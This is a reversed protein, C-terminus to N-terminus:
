VLEQCHRCRKMGPPVGEQSLTAPTLPSVPANREILSSVPISLPGQSKSSMAATSPAKELGQNVNIVSAATTAPVSIKYNLSIKPMDSVVSHEEGALHRKQLHDNTSRTM